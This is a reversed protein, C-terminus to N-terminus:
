AVCELLHQGRVSDTDRIRPLSVPRLGDPELHAPLNLYIATGPTITTPPTRARGVGLQRVGVCHGAVSSLGDGVCRSM